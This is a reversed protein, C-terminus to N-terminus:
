DLICSNGSSIGSANVILTAHPAPSPFCVNCVDQPYATELETPARPPCLIHESVETLESVM